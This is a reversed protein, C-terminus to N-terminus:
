GVLPARTWGYCVESAGTAVIEAKAANYLAADSADHGRSRTCYRAALWVSNENEGQFLQGHYEEVDHRQFSPSRILM